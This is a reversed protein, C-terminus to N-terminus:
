AANIRSRLAEIAEASLTRDEFSEAVRDAYMSLQDEARTLLEQAKAVDGTALYAASLPVLCTAPGYEDDVAQYVRIAQRLHEIAEASRGLDAYAKGLGRLSTALGLRDGLTRRIAFSRRHWELAVDPERERLHWEGLYTGAIAQYNAAEGTKFLEFARLYSARASAYDGQAELIRGLSASLYGVRLPMYAIEATKIAKRFLAIADNLKDLKFLSSAMANMAIVQLFPAHAEEALRLARQAQRYAENPRHGYYSLLAILTLAESAIEPEGNLNRRKVFDLAARAEELRSQGM